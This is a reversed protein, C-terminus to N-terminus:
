TNTILKQVNSQRSPKAWAKLELIGILSHFSIDETSRWDEFFRFSAPDKLNM